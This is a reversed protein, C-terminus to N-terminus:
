EIGSRTDVRGLQLALTVAARMSGDSATGQWALDFATGHDPSTRIIPLGLTVNVGTDFALMKFPILGQDHYMAVYVDTTSQISPIFATDAPLPGRVQLGRDQVAYVAPAIEREEERGFAGAEGAHPNLGCVTIRPHLIGQQQLAAHALMLVHEVRSRTIQHAVGALAVHTTVLCVRMIDSSMMMCVEDQGTLAALMETHGPYKIGAAHLAEKHLPATVVAAIKGAVADAVARKVCRGAAAGCSAQVVGPVVTEAELAEDDVVCRADPLSRKLQRAVRKLLALSGYVRIQCQSHLSSDELLGLCLEPGVGAPDGMTVGIVPLESM